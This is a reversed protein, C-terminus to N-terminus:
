GPGPQRHVRTGHAHRLETAIMATARVKPTKTAWSIYRRVSESVESLVDRTEHVRKQRFVDGRDELEHLGKWLFLVSM